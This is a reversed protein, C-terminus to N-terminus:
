NNINLLEDAEQVLEKQSKFKDEWESLVTGHIAHGDGGKTHHNQCLSFSLRDSVKKGLGGGIIHHAETLTTQRLKFGKCIQCPMKRLAALRKPDKFGPRLEIAPKPNGIMNNKGDVM